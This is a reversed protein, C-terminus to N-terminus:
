QIVCAKDPYDPAKDKEIPVTIQNTKGATYSPSWALKGVSISTCSDSIPAISAKALSSFTPKKRTLVPFNEATGCFSDGGAVEGYMTATKLDEKQKREITEQLTNHFHRYAMSRANAEGQSSNKMMMGAIKKTQNMDALGRDVVLLLVAYEDVISCYKLAEMALSLGDSYVGYQIALDAGKVTYKCADGFGTKGSKGFHYSLRPALLICQLSISICLQFVHVYPRYYPKLDNQHSIEIQQAIHKHIRKSDRYYPINM